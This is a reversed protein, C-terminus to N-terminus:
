REFKRQRRQKQRQREGEGQTESAMLEMPSDHHHTSAKVPQRMLANERSTLDEARGAHVEPVGEVKPAQEQKRFSMLHDRKRRINSRSRDRKRPALGSIHCQWRGSWIQVTEYEIDNQYFHPSANGQVLLETTNGFAHIDPSGKRDDEDMKRTGIEDFLAQEFGHHNNIKRGQTLLERMSIVFDNPIFKM